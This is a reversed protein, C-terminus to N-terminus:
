TKFRLRLTVLPPRRCTARCPQGSSVHFDHLLGRHRRGDALVRDPQCSALKEPFPTRGLCAHGREDDVRPQTAAPASHCGVVAGFGLMRTAQLQRLRAFAVAAQEIVGTPDHFVHELLDTGRAAQHDQGVRLAHDQVAQAVRLEDIPRAPHRQLRARAPALRRAAGVGDARRDHGFGGGHHEAALVVEVAVAEQGARGRRDAIRAAREGAHEVHGALLAHVLAVRESQYAQGHLQDLLAEELGLEGVVDQDGEVLARLVDAAQLFSQNRHRRLAVQGTGVRDRALPDPTADLASTPGRERLQEALPESLHDVPRHTRAVRQDPQSQAITGLDVNLQARQARAEGGEARGLGPLAHARKGRFGARRRDAGCGRHRRRRRHRRRM